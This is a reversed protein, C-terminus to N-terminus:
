FPYRNEVSFDENKVSCRQIAIDPFSWSARRQKLKQKSGYRFKPELARLVLVIKGPAQVTKDHKVAM